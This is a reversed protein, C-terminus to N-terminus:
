WALFLSRVIRRADGATDHGHERAVRARVGTVRRIGALSAVRRPALSWTVAAAMTVLAMSQAFINPLNGDGLVVYALPPLQYALVALVATRRQGWARLVVPYLLAGAAVDSAATVGRILATHDATIWTWLSTFLYLGIAYPMEVGGVFPQTFYYKGGLM